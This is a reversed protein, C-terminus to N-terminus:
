DAAAKAQAKLLFPRANFTSCAEANRHFEWHLYVNGDPSVIERPPMGFPATRKVSDLAAIDFAIIGSSKTVGLRVVDGSEQNLIIELETSLRQDNLPHGAPLRDLAILFVGAFLPHIRNHTANMYGAFAVKATRLATQNDLRVSPVYNELARRWLTPDYPHWDARPSVQVTSTGAVGGGSGGGNAVANAGYNSGAEAAATRESPERAICAALLGCLLLSLSRTM